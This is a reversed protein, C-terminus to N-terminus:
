DQIDKDEGNDKLNNPVTEGALKKKLKLGNKIEEFGEGFVSNVPAVTVFAKPDVEKIKDTLMSMESRRVIILLVKKAAGSYWGVADLATVGRDMQKNIYDAIQKYRESFVMIQVSSKRGLTIADLSFSFVIVALYGYIMEDITKGPVLMVSAIILIDLAIYVKGLSIPWFKNIILAIIDTGGSSGNYKIMISVGIAEILSAIVPMLIRDKLEMTPIHLMPLVDFLLTIMALAFITRIGFSRGLILFALLLLVANFIAYSIYLPFGTGYEIVVCLGTIGGSVLGNPEFIQTWALCYILCGFTILLYAKVTDFVKSVTM